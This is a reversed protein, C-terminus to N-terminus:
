AARRRLYIVTAALGLMAVSGAALALPLANPTGDSTKPLTACVNQTTSTARSSTGASPAAAANELPIVTEAAPKDASTRPEDASPESVPESLQVNESVAPEDSTPEDVTPEDTQPNEPVPEDAPESVPEDASPAQPEDVTPEDPVPEDTVPADPTPEDVAPTVPEDPAPEDSLQFVYTPQADRVTFYVTWSGSWAAATMRYAPVDIDVKPGTVDLDVTLPTAAAITQGVSAVSLESELSIQKTTPLNNYHADQGELLSRYFAYEELMRYCQALTTYESDVTANEFEYLGSTSSVTFRLVDGSAAYGDPASVERLEYTHGWV